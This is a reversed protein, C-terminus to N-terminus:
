KQPEQSKMGWIAASHGAAIATLATAAAILDVDLGKYARFILVGLVTLVSAAWSFKCMHYTEGDIGTFLDKFVKKLLM